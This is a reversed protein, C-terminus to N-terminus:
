MWGAKRFRWFLFLDVLVIFGLVLPYGMQSELEPMHKFNMGYIGAVATPVAFLAGYSALKKNVESESLAIMSLNVQIATTAMERLNEISNTIRILHDYVDRYYDQMGVCIQPVRGGHLKGVAELLPSAAHQLTVLKRKLSYLDEINLRVKSKKAFIRDEIFELEHELREEVPFYRDVIADMLAYLVFASGHKLLDPERECRERVGAFGKEAKNRISLIYNKAVFINVEGTVLDNEANLEVTHLVVFLSDGYEEIKPSQHGHRADEIALPHIDFEERMRELEAADPDKLAVWVFCDERKVYDSIKEIELDAIKHGQQYAVCNVLM